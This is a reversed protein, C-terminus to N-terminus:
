MSLIARPTAQVHEPQRSAISKAADTGGVVKHFQQCYFLVYAVAAMGAVTSAVISFLQLVAKTKGALPRSRLRHMHRSAAADHLKAVM